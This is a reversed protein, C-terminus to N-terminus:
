SGEFISYKWCRSFKGPASYSWSASRYLQFLLNLDHWRVKNFIFSYLSPGWIPTSGTFFLFYKYFNENHINRYADKTPIFITIFSDIFKAILGLLKINPFMVLCAKVPYVQVSINTEFDHSFFIRGPQPLVNRVAATMRSLIQYKTFCKITWLNVDKQFLIAVVM